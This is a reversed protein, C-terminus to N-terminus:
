NAGPHHKKPGFGFEKKPGFENGGGQPGDGELIELKKAKILDAAKGTTDILWVRGHLEPGRGPAAMLTGTLVRSLNRGKPELGYKQSFKGADEALIAVLIHGGPRYDRRDLTVAHFFALEPVPSKWHVPKVFSVDLTVEKGEFDAPTALIYEATRKSESAQVLPVVAVLLVLSLVHSMKMVAM